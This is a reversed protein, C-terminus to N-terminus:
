WRGPFPDESGWRAILIAELERRRANNSEMLAKLQEATGQSCYSLLHNNFFSASAIPVFRAAHELAFLAARVAHESADPGNASIVKDASVDIGFRKELIPNAHKAWCLQGYVKYEAKTRAGPDPVGLAALGDHMMTRLNRVPKTPDNHDLWAQARTEDAGIWVIAFTVECMSAAITLAQIPYGLSALIQVSRLDNSLRLLLKVAVHLAKPLTNMPGEPVQALLISIMNFADATIHQHERLQPELQGAAHKEATDLSEARPCM